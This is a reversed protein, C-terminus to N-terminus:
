NIFYDQVKKHHLVAQLVTNSFHELYTASLQTIILLACVTAQQKEELGLTTSRNLLYSSTKIKFVNAPCGNKFLM